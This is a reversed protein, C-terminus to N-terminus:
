KEDESQWDVREIKPQRELSESEMLILYSVSFHIIRGSEKELRSVIRYMLRWRSQAYAENHDYLNKIIIILYKRTVLTITRYNSCISQIWKKQGYKRMGYKGVVKGNHLKKIALEIEEIKATKGRVYILLTLM